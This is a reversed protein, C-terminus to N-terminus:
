PFVVSTILWSLYTYLVLWLSEGDALRCTEQDLGSGESGDRAMVQPSPVGLSDEVSAIM